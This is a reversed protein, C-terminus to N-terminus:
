FDQLLAAAGKDLKYLPCSGDGLRVWNRQLLDIIEADRSFHLPSVMSPTPTTTDFRPGEDYGECIMEGSESKYCVIGESNNEFVQDGSISKIQLPSSNRRRSVQSSNNSDALM